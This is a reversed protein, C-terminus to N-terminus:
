ASMARDDAHPALSAEEPVEIEAPMAVVIRSAAILVEPVCARTFPLLLTTTDGAGIELSTGAGYDHVALVRGLTRWGDGAREVAELGILDSHYFEGEDPPPLRDRDVFLRRNTLAAARERDAVVTGAGDSLEAVGEARWRLTWREGRDDTLVGYGALDAPVTAFSQLHVLGRVGHPRGIVGMLIRTDGM